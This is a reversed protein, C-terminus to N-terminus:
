NRCRFCNPHISINFCIFSCVEEKLLKKMRLELVDKKFDPDDAMEAEIWDPKIGHFVINFPGNQAAELREKARRQKELEQSFCPFSIYINEIKFQTM